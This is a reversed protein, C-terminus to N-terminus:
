SRGISSGKSLAMAVAIVCSVGAFALPTRLTLLAAYAGALVVLALIQM